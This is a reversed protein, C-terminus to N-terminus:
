KALYAITQSFQATVEARLTAWDPQKQPVAKYSAAPATKAEQTVEQEAKQRALM